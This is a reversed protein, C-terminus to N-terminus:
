SAEVGFIITTFVRTSVATNVEKQYAAQSMKYARESDAVKTNADFKVDMLSKDCKSEQLLMVSFFSIRHRTPFLLAIM